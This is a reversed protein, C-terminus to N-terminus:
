QLFGADDGSFLPCFHFHDLKEYFRFNDNIASSM